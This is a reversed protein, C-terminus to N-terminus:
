PLLLLVLSTSYNDVIKSDVGVTAVGYHHSKANVTALKYSLAEYLNLNLNRTCFLM